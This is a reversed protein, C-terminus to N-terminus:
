MGFGSTPRSTRDIFGLRRANGQFDENGAYIVDPNTPTFDFNAADVFAPNAEVVDTLDYTNSNLSCHDNLASDAVCWICSNFISEISAGGHAGSSYLAFDTAAAPMFINDRGACKAKAADYLRLCATTQGYFLNGIFQQGTRARFGCAGKYFLCNVITAYDCIPAYSMGDNDFVCSDVTGAPMSNVISNGYGWDNGIYCKYLYLGWTQGALSSYGDDFKCNIIDIHYPTTASSILYNSAAHSTNHLYLNKLIINDSNTITMGKVATNNFDLNLCKSTDVSGNKLVDLPGQYYTGGYNMDGISTNFGEITLHSNNAVAGGNASTFAITASLTEAKNDYIWMNYTLANDFATLANALTDFAGGINVTLDSRDSGYAMDSVTITTAGVATIKYRGTKGEASSSVYAVMGVEAADFDDASAETIVNTAAVVSANTSTCLPAGNTGMIDTLTFSGPGGAGEFWARTCGGANANGAKTGVGGVFCVAAETSAIVAV